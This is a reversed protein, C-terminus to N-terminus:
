LKNKLVNLLNHPIKETNLNEIFHNLIIAIGEGDLNDASKVTDTIKNVLISDLSDISSIKNENTPKNLLHQKQKKSVLDEILKSMKEKSETARVKVGGTMYASNYYYDNPQIGSQVFDDTTQNPATKVQSDYNDVDDGEIPTGDGDVLETLEESDYKKLDKKKFKM